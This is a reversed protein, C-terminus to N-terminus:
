LNFHYLIITYHYLIITNLIQSQWCYIALNMDTKGSLIIYGHYAYKSLMNLLETKTHVICKQM